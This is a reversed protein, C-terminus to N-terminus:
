ETESTLSKRAMYIANRDELILKNLNPDLNPGYAILMIELSHPFYGGHVETFGVQQLDRILEPGTWHKKHRMFDGREPMGFLVNMGTVGMPIGTGVHLSQDFGISRETVHQVLLEVSPVRVVVFGTDKVCHKLARLAKGSDEPSFHELVHSAYVADFKGKTRLGGEGFPLLEKEPLSCLDACIDPNTEKDVDLNIVLFNDVLLHPLEIKSDHSGVNLCTYEM